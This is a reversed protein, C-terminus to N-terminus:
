GAQLAARLVEVVRDQDAETLGAYLPISIARDYYAEAAPFDGRAFGRARYFPQTHVPIYHVNVGIGNERLYAFM